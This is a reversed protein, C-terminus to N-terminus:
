EWNNRNHEYDLCTWHDHMLFDVAVFFLLAQLPESSWQGKSNQMQWCIGPQHHFSLTTNQQRHKDARCNPIILIILIITMILVISIILLIKGSGWASTGSPAARRSPHVGRAVNPLLRGACSSIGIGSRYMGCDLTYSASGCFCAIHFPPHLWLLLVQLIKPQQWRAFNQPPFDLALIEKTESWECIWLSM